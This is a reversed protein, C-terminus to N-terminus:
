NISLWSESSWIRDLNTNSSAIHSQWSSSLGRTRQAKPLTKLYIINKKQDKSKGLALQGLSWTIFNTSDCGAALQHFGGSAPNWVSKGLSHWKCQLIAWAWFHLSFSKQGLAFYEPWLFIWSGRQWEKVGRSQSAYKLNSPNLSIELWLSRVNTPYTLPMLQLFITWKKAIWHQASPHPSKRPATWGSAMKRRNRALSIGKQPPGAISRCIEM